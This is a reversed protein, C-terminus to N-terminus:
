ATTRIAAQVPPARFATLANVGASSKGGCKRGRSSRIGTAGFAFRSAQSQIPQLMSPSRNVRPRGAGSCGCACAGAGALCCNVPESAPRAIRGIPRNQQDPRRSEFVRGEAGLASASGPQAVGRAGSGLYKLTRACSGSRECPFPRTRRDRRGEGHQVDVDAGDTRGRGRRGACVRPRRPSGRAAAWKPREPTARSIHM